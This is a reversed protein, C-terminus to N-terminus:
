ASPERQGRLPRQRVAQAGLGRLAAARRRLSHWAGAILSGLCARRLARAERELMFRDYATWYHPDAPQDNVLAQTRQLLYANDHTSNRVPFPPPQPTVPTEVRMPDPADVAQPRM